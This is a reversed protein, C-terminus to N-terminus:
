RQLFQQWHRNYPHVGTTGIDRGIDCGTDSTTVLRHGENSWRFLGGALNAILVARADSGSGRSFEDAGQRLTQGSIQRRCRNALASSRVGVACYFLVLETTQRQALTATVFAVSAARGPPVLHANALHSVAFEQPTRVDFLVIRSPQTTLLAVLAAPEIHEIEPYRAAVDATMAMLPDRGPSPAAWASRGALRLATRYIATRHIM